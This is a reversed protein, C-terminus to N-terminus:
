TAARAVYGSAIPDSELDDAVIPVTTTAARAAEISPRATPVLVDVGLQILEQTLQPLAEPKGRAWRAELTISEGEVYGLERFGERLSDMVISGEPSGPHLFGVLPTKQARQARAASPWTAAASGLLAIFERRRV